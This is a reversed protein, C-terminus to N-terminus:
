NQKKQTESVTISSWDSNYKSLNHCTHLDQSRVNHRYFKRVADVFATLIGM